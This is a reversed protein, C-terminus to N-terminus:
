IYYDNKHEDYFKIKENIIYNINNIKFTYMDLDLANKKNWKIVKKFLFYTILISIFFKLFAIFVNGKGNIIVQIDNDFTFLSSLITGIFAVILFIFYFHYLFKLLKNMNRSINNNLNPNERLFDVKLIKEFNEKTENEIAYFIYPPISTEKNKLNKFYQIYDMTTTYHEKKYFYEILIELYKDQKNELEVDSKSFYNQLFSLIAIIFALTDKNEYIFIFIKKWFEM